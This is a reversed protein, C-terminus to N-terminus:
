DDGGNADFEKLLKAFQSTELGFFPGFHYRAPQAGKKVRVAVTKLFSTRITNIYKQCPDKDQESGARTPVRARFLAGFIRQMRKIFTMNEEHESLVELCLEFWANAADELLLFKSGSFEKEAKPAIKNAQRNKVDMEHNERNPQRGRPPIKFLIEAANTFIEELRHDFYPSDNQRFIFTQAPASKEECKSDAYRM